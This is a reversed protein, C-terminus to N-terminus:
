EAAGAEAICYLHTATRVFLQKGAVAISSLTYSNDLENTALKKYEPGAALVTTIGLENTIYLKGDALLPSASTTGESAREPGWIVEATKADLCTVVGNDAVMYFYKGDCVPTPVDPGGTRDWKWALHSSTVNGSGGARLALLPRQRTPAYIIGDAVVPSAIIRFNGERGPNLGAARWIEAGTAPDHGTVYDGGSIVIQDKGDVTVVTPTTYADPSERQADTPREQRWVESGTLPDFAVIYSPEDTNNGHLVQIVLKGDHLFPSSAYGWNLGFQSYDQQLYKQWIQNGDMDFATVAGTGTVVWVHKGDTVPSPSSNNQKRWLRNGEDLEKTWLIAGDERSICILTLVNGGPDRDGGGFRGGGFGRRGGRRGRRGRGEDPPPTTEQPAPQAAEGTSGASAQSPSATPSTVFIRDGWVVPTGGSWSPLPAKWVINEQLSWTTPLGTSDSIGNGHPGRWAPWHENAFALSPLGLALSVTTVLLKM